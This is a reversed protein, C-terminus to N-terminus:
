IIDKAWSPKTGWTVVKDSKRLDFHIHNDYFGIGKAGNDVLAELLRKKDSTSLGRLSLDAAIGEMHKSRKKGGVDENHLKDRYTSNIKLKQGVASSAIDAMELVARSIRSGPTNAVDSWRTYWKTPKFSGKTVMGFKPAHYDMLDQVTKLRNKAIYSNSQLAQTSLVNTLLAEPSAKLIKMGGDSGFHHMMYLNLFDATLDQKDLLNANRETFDLIARRVIARDKDDPSTRIALKQKDTLGQVEPYDKIVDLWTSDIFQGAGVASSAPNSGFGEAATLYEYYSGIDEVLGTGAVSGGAGIPDKGSLLDSLRWGSADPATSSGRGGVPPVAAGGGLLRNRAMNWAQEENGEGVINTLAQIIAPPAMKATSISQWDYQSLLGVLDEYSGFFGSEIAEDFIARAGNGRLIGAKRLSKNVSAAVDRSSADASDKKSNQIQTLVELQLSVNAPDDLPLGYSNAINYYGNYIAADAKELGVTTGPNPDAGYGGGRGGQPKARLGAIEVNRESFARKLEELYADGEPTLTMDDQMFGRAIMNNRFIPNKLLEGVTQDVAVSSREKITREYALTDTEVVDSEQTIPIDKIRAGIEKGIDIFAYQSPDFEYGKIEGRKYKEVDNLAMQLLNPDKPPSKSLADFRADFVVQERLIDRLGPYNSFDSAARSLPATLFPNKLQEASINFADDTLGSAQRAESIVKRQEDNDYRVKTVDDYVKLMREMNGRSTKLEEEKIKTYTDLASTLPGTSLEPLNLTPAYTVNPVGRGTDVDYIVTGGRQYKM